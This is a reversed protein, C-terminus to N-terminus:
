DWDAQVFVVLPRGANDRFTLRPGDREYTAVAALADLFSAERAMAPEECAMRTSGFPGMEIMGDELRYSGFFSNCGSHGSLRGDSKFRLFLDADEPLTADGLQTPRWESGALEAVAVPLALSLGMALALLVTRVRLM